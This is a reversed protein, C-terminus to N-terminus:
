GAFSRGTLGTWGISCMRPPDFNALVLHGAARIDKLQNAQDYYNLSVGVKWADRREQLAANYLTCAESLQHDLALVQARTPYLRYKFTRRHIIGTPAQKGDPQTQVVAVPVM